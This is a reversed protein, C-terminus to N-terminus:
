IANQQRLIGALRDRFAGYRFNNRWREQGAQGMAFAADRDDFLSILRDALEGARELDVNYGTVEDLNVEQGADHVSAIVPLGYRM